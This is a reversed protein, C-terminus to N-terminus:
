ALCANAAHGGACWGNWASHLAAGGWGRDTGPRSVPSVYRRQWSECGGCDRVPVTCGAEQPEKIVIVFLIIHSSWPSLPWFTMPSMCEPVPLKWEMAGITAGDKPDVSWRYQERWTVAIVEKAATLDSWKGVLFYIFSSMLQSPWAELLWNDARVLTLM